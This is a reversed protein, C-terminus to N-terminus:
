QEFCQLGHRLPRRRGTALRIRAQHQTHLWFSARLAASHLAVHWISRGNLGACNTLPTPYLRKRLEHFRGSELLQLHVRLILHWRCRPQGLWVAKSCETRLAACPRHWYQLVSVQSDQHREAAGQSRQRLRWKKDTLLGGVALAVGAVITRASGLKLKPIHAAVLWVGAFLLLLFGVEALRVGTEHAFGLLLNM